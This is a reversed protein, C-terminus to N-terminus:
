TAPWTQIALEALQKQREIIAATTWDDLAAVQSTLEYPSRAYIEKKEDFSASKAHSNESAKLLVLNGLRKSYQMVDDDSIHPWNDEPKQPLVHELNIMAPDESPLFWPESEDKVQREMSRLYYRALRATTVRAREFAEQFQSDSPTLTRLQDKLQKATTITGEFVDKAATSLPGEVSGSRITAAILLRVGVSVLYAFAESAESPSFQATVALLLARMPRIDLLNFVEVSSRASKPYENWRESAPNFTAVYVNALTELHTAFTVTSQPARAISQVVDYVDAASLYGRLLVLAHRLFNITIDEEDLSELAGRMYSWRTQVERFREGSRGFLYNKVLDIQSTRLGRDNLTEFMKYADSDNPAKVLVVLAHHEIFSVWRDLFDGHDKVDVISVIKQVHKRALQHAGLLLEHSPRTTEPLTADGESVILKFLDNDDVNLKLRPERARQARRIGTLFTNNIAEVLVDEGMSKLHDRIAALLLATTALRQQGDVVELTGSTRPITVITGLFYDADDSIAKAFDQFLQTVEVETWAYERQNPPVELQYVKMITGLGAQEFGTQAQGEPM